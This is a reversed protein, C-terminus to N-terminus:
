QFELGAIIIVICTFNLTIVTITIEIVFEVEDPQDPNYKMIRHFVQSLNHM